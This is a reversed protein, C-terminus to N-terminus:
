ERYRKEFVIEEGNIVDFIGSGDEKRELYFRTRGRRAMDQIKNILKSMDRESVKYNVDVDGTLLQIASSIKAKAEITKKRDIHHVRGITSILSLLEDEMNKLQLFDQIRTNEM